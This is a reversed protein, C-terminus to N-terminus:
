VSPLDAVSAVEIYDDEHGPGIEPAFGLMVHEPTIGSPDWISTGLFATHTWKVSWSEYSDEAQRFSEMGSSAFRGPTIPKGFKNRHVFSAVSAAFLRASLKGGQKYTTICEASFRLLVELQETGNDSPNADEIAELEFFIAPVAIKEGPRSYYDVTVKPFKAKLGAKIAEHLEPLQIEPLM